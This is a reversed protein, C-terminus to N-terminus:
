SGDDLFEGCFDRYKVVPWDRPAYRAPADTVLHDWIRMDQEFAQRSGQLLALITYDSPPVGNASRMALSVRIVSEGGTTPTAATIVVHSRERAGLETAVLTPSFVHACFRSEVKGDGPEADDQWPNPRNTEFVAEVALEGYAGRDVRMKPVRNLGHVSTFHDMDFVNEIVYEPPVRARLAFGPVFVCTQVLSELFETLGSEYRDSLLVFVSGGFELTRYGRVCYRRRPVHGLTIRRGHFPCVLVNGELRGGYALNAGRHPCVADFAAVEGARRVLVLQLAGISAPTVDEM